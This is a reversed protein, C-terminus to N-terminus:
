IALFLKIAPDKEYKKLIDKDNRLENKVDEGVYSVIDFFFAQDIEKQIMLAAKVFSMEFGVDRGSAQQDKFYELLDEKSYKKKGIFKKFHLYAKKQIM